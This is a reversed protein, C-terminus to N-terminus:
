DVGDYGTEDFVKKLITRGDVGLDGLHDRETQQSFNRVRTKDRGQGCIGREKAEIQVQLNNASFHSNQVV